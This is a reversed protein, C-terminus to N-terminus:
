LSTASGLLGEGQAPMAGSHPIGDGSDEYWPTEPATAHSRAYNFAEVMTVDGDDNVDADVPNGDPDRGMIASTFNFSFECFNLDERSWSFEHEGASSMLIRDGGQAMDHILGGGFCTGTLVIMRDFTLDSVIGALDDDLVTGGGFLGQWACLEEDWSVTDSQDGDGNLDLGYAGEYLAEGPEDSGFDWAGGYLLDTSTDTNFGGGHNTFFTFILDDDGTVGRLQEFAAALGAKTAAGDVPMTFDMGFGDAYLVLVHDQPFGLPGVLASYMFKLDNWYRVHANLLDVGGSFLVAYKHPDPSASPVIDIAYDHPFLSAGTGVLGFSVNSLGLDFPALSSIATPNGDPVPSGLAGTGVLGTVRLRQGGYVAPDIAEAAAGSLLVYSDSPMPTNVRVVDPVAVLMPVPDKVFYGEVAVEQGLFLHWDIGKLDPIPILDLPSTTTTTGASELLGLLNHLVQAVEGRSMSGWPDLGALAIGELLGNYEARRANGGHTASLAADWTAEWSAPPQALLAPALDDAARVVMTIVQFRSINEGPGFMTASKGVTIGREAAVAIFNDPFLSLLGSWEVDSFLCVDLESVPYGGTLVVMKAFQQRTVPDQPGFNGNPYGNIIGRNALDLIADHYPHSGPVDPFEATPALAPSSIALILAGLVLLGVGTKLLLGLRRRKARPPRSTGGRPAGDLTTGSTPLEISQASNKV